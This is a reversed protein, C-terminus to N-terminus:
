AFTQVTAGDTEAVFHTRDGQVGLVDAVAIHVGWGVKHDAVLDRHAVVGAANGVLHSGVARVIEVVTDAVSHGLVYVAYLGVLDQCM